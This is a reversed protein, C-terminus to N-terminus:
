HPMSSRTIGFTCNTLAPCHSFVLLIEPISTSSASRCLLILFCIVGQSFLNTLWTDTSPSNALLYLSSQFSIIWNLFRCFIRVPVGLTPQCDASSCIYLCGVSVDNSFKLNYCHKESCFLVDQKPFHISDISDQQSPYAGLLASM